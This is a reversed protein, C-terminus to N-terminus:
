NLILKKIIEKDGSTVKVFYVGSSIVSVGVEQQNNLNTFAEQKVIKGLADIIVIKDITDLGNNKVTFNATTPNPFLTLNNENFSFDSVALITGFLQVEALQFVQESTNCQNTFNVRYYSYGNTNSFNFTRTYFRTPDCVITGTTIVTFTSGNNSGAIEYNM